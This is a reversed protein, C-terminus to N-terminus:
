INWSKIRGVVQSPDRSIEAEYLTLIKFDKFNRRGKEKRV